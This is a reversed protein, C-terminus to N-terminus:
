LIISVTREKIYPFYVFVLPKINIAPSFNYTVIENEKHNNIETNCNV